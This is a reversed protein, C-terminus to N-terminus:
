CQNAFRSWTHGFDDPRATTLAQQSVSRQLLCSRRPCRGKQNHCRWHNSEKPGNRRHISPQSSQLFDQDISSSTSQHLRTYFLHSPSSLNHFVPPHTVFPPHKPALPLRAPSAEVEQLESTVQPGQSPQDLRAVGVVDVWCRISGSGLSWDQEIWDAQKREEEDTTMCSCARGHDVKDYWEHQELWEANDTCPWRLRESAFYDSTREM